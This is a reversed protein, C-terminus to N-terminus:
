FRIPLALRVRFDPADPTVGIGLEVDLLARATLLTALGLELIGVTADSGAVSSGAVRTRGFRTTEFAARLSTEPSAALLSGVKLGVADGPDVDTGSRHREFVRTYSAAGFFVLPDERKVATLTGQLQPFGSGPSLRSLEHEGTTSKWNLSGLLAPRGRREDLFQKALALEVDGLGSTRESERAASATARDEHAWVYPVRVEAQMSWPLGARLGLRAELQNRSIDQQAVFGGGAVIGLGQSGRYSYQLRPEFEFAGKPLVLGGARVLTRELARAGEDERGAEESVAPKPAPKPAAAPPTPAPPPQRSPREELRKELLDIRRRLEEILADRTDTQPSTETQPFAESALLLALSAILTRPDACLAVCSPM